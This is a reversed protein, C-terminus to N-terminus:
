WTFWVNGNWENLDTKPTKDQEKIKSCIERYEETKQDRNQKRCM